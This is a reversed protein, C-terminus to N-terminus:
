DEIAVLFDTVGDHYDELEPLERLTYKCSPLFERYFKRTATQIEAANQSGITFRLWKSAPIHIQEFEPIKQKWLCYYKQSEARAEDYTTMGYDIAGYKDQYDSKVKQFFVPADHSIKANNTEIGVGSLDLEPLEVIEYDLETVVPINEDFRLQPFNKLKTRETVQSPKVGHFKEFARSFATANDYGYKAALDVVKPQGTYLDYGALSLRRKRVYESFSQGALVAFLKNATYINTHLFKAVVEPRLDNELNEEIHEILENLQHYINM